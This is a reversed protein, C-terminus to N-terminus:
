NVLHVNMHENTSLTSSRVLTNAERLMQAQARHQEFDHHFTLYVQLNDLEVDDARLTLPAHAPTKRFNM